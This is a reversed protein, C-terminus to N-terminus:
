SVTSEKSGVVKIVLESKSFFSKPDDLIYSRDERDALWRVARVDGELAKQIMVLVMAQAYTTSKGKISKSLPIGGLVGDLADQELLERVITSVNKSGPMRGAPNGSTGKPWKQLNALSKQKIKQKM